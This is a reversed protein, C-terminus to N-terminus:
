DTRPRKNEGEEAGDPDRSRVTGAGDGLEEGEADGNKDGDGIWNGDEDFYENVNEATIWGSSGPMPPPLGGTANGRFAGPLGEIAEGSGDVSSEFIIRDAYDEGDDDEDDEDEAPDPHLNQCATIADFLKEQESRPSSGEEAASSLDTSAPPPIITLQATDFTEDDAGGDSLDLQLLICPAKASEADSTGNGAATTTTTTTSSSPEAKHQMAHLAISPYPIQVGTGSKRNFITLTESNVFLEVDDQSVIEGSDGESVPSDTPFLPLASQQDKPIWAKAGTAHYHLVPKGGHFTEPTTSQYESLPTFDGLAPSAHITTPLM